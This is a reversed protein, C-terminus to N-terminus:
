SPSEANAHDRAAGLKDAWDRVEHEYWGRARETLHLQRPFQNRSILVYVTSRGIGTLALVERLRIIRKGM